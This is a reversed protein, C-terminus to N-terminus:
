AQRRDRMENRQYAEVARRLDVSRIPYTAEAGSKENHHGPNGHPADEAPWSGNRRWYEEYFLHRHVRGVYDEFGDDPVWKLPRPDQPFWLCLQQVCGYDPDLPYRHKWARRPGRPFSFIEGAPSVSIRAREDAYGAISLETPPALTLDVVYGGLRPAWSRNVSVGAQTGTLRMLARHPAEVLESLSTGM